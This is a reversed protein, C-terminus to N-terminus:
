RCVGNYIVSYGAQAAKCSNSFTQKVAPCPARFCQVAKQACVPQYIEICVDPRPTPTPVPRPTVPGHSGNSGHGCYATHVHPPTYPNHNSNHGGYTRGRRSYTSPPTFRPPNNSCQRQFGGQGYPRRVWSCNGANSVPPQPHSTQPLCTPGSYTEVCTHGQACLTSACTLRQAQCVPGGPTDVCSGSACRVSACTAGASASPAFNMFAFMAFVLVSFYRLM